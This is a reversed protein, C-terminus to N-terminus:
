LICELVCISICQVDLSFAVCSSSWTTCLIAAWSLSFIWLIVLCFTAPHCQLSHPFQKSCSLMPYIVTSSMSPPSCGAPSPYCRLSLHCKNEDNHSLRITTIQTHPLRWCKVRQIGICEHSRTPQNSLM